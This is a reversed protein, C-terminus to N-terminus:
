PNSRPRSAVPSPPPSTCVVNKIQKDVDDIGYNLKAIAVSIDERAPELASPKASAAAAAAAAASPPPPYPEGALVANAYDNADFDPSAFVAYDPAPESRPRSAPPPPSIVLCSTSANLVATTPARAPLPQPLRHLQVTEASEALTSPERGCYETGTWDRRRGSM